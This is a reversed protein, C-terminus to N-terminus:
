KHMVTQIKVLHKSIKRKILKLAGSHLKVKSQLNKVRKKLDKHYLKSTCHIKYKLHHCSTRLENQGYNSFM